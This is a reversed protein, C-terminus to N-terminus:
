RLLPTEASPTVGLAAVPAANSDSRDSGPNRDGTNGAARSRAHRTDPPPVIQRVPRSWLAAVSASRGGTREAPENGRLPFSDLGRDGPVPCPRQGTHLRHGGAM